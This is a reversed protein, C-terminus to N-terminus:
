LERVTASDFPTTLYGSVDCRRAAPRHDCDPSERRSVDAEIAGVGVAATRSRGEDTGSIAGDGAGAPSVRDVDGHSVVRSRRGEADGPPHTREAGIGIRIAEFVRAGARQRGNGM